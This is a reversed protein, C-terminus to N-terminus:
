PTSMTAQAQATAAAEYISQDMAVLDAYIRDGILLYRDYYGTYSSLVSARLAYMTPFGLLRAFDSLTGHTLTAAFARWEADVVYSLLDQWTPWGFAAALGGLYPQIRYEAVVQDIQDLTFGHNIFNAMPATRGMIVNRTPDEAQGQIAESVGVQAGAIIGNTNAYKALAWAQEDNTIAALPTAKIWYCGGPQENDGFGHTMYVPVTYLSGGVMLQDGPLLILNIAMAVVHTGGCYGSGWAVITRFLERPSLSDSVQRWMPSLNETYRAMEIAERQAKSMGSGFLQDGFLDIIFKVIQIVVAIILGIVPIFLVALSAVDLAVDVAKQLDPKDGIITFGIDVVLGVAMLVGAMPLAALGPYATAAGVTAINGLEMFSVMPNAAAVTMIDNIGSIARYAMAAGQLSSIFDQNMGPIQNAVSAGVGFIDVSRGAAVGNIAQIVKYSANGLGAIMGPTLEIPQDPPGNELIQLYLDNRLAMRDSYQYLFSQFDDPNLAAYARLLLATENDLAAALDAPVEHMPMQNAVALSGNTAFPADPGTGAGATSIPAGEPGASPVTAEVPPPPVPNGAPALTGQVVMTGPAGPLLAGDVVQNRSKYWAYVAGGVLVVTIPEPM